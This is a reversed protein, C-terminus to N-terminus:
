NVNKNKKIFFKFKSKKPEENLSITDNNEKKRDIRYIKNNKTFNYLSKTDLSSRTSDNSTRSSISKIDFDRTFDKAVKLLDPNTTNYHHLINDYLKQQKSVITNIKFLLADRKIEDVYIFITKNNKKICNNNLPIFQDMLNNYMLLNYRTTKLYEDYYKDKINYKYISTLYESEFNINM